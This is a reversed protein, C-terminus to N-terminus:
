EDDSVNSKDRTRLVDIINRCIPLLAEIEDERCKSLFVQMKHYSASDNQEEPFFIERPDIELLRILPYLIETKPNGKGNEINLITRSDLGLEKAVQTQTMGKDIRAKRVADGLPRQFDKM